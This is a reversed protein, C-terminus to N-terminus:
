GPGMLFRGPSRGLSSKREDFHKDDNRDDREDHSQNAWANQIKESFRLHFSCFNLDFTQRAGEVEIGKIGSPIRRAGLCNRDM